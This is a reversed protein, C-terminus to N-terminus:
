LRSAQAVPSLTLWNPKAANLINHAALKQFFLEVAQQARADPNFKLLQGIYTRALDAPWHHSKAQNTVLWDLRLDNRLRVRELMSAAEAIRPSDADESRCMWTAYVFPLDTLEHWAQGLDIQHPYRVAPPSDVVVKDGILLVTEPWAEDPSRTPESPPTGTKERADFPIFNATVDHQERLIVDALMVSTHSDTDAHVTTIQAPPVASFLRVTLTPGDCGIMGAPILTLNNKPDAAPNAADVISALGIDVSGELIMQGIRSPVAKILECGTWTDLGEILTVTNLFQVAAIKTPSQTNSTTPMNLMTPSEAHWRPMSHYLIM